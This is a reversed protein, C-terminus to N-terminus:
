IDIRGKTLSMGHHRQLKGNSAMGANRELRAAGDSMVVRRMVNQLEVACGLNRVPIAVRDCFHEAAFFFGHLQIFAMDSASETNATFNIWFVNQDAGCRHSESTRYFPNLIAAFM